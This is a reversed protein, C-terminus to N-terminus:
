CLRSSGSNACRLRSRLIEDSKEDCDLHAPVLTSGSAFASLIHAAKRNQFADFSQRLPKGDVTIHRQVPPTSQEDATPKSIISSL